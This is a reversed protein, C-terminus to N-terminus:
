GRLYFMRKMERRMQAVRDYLYGFFLCLISFLGVFGAIFLTPFRPVLGTSLYNLIIPIVLICSLLASLIFLTGFILLPRESIILDVIVKLIRWGDRYTNLKSTSGEPRSYYPTDVEGTKLRMQLSHVTLETETEFGGASAAFSKVFRRSFVRYGSLIDTFARGFLFEVTKTFFVNGLRHGARYAEQCQDRRCGVVMDMQETILKEIMLPASAADYTADGDVMVYIHAEIDAFMRRVVNGKGQLTERRVIAGSKKAISYTDDNSNNDYVYIDSEPVAKRFDHIVKGISSAENYCPILIAIHSTKM